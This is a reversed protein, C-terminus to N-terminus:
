SQAGLALVVLDLAEHTRRLQKALDGRRDDSPRKGYRAASRCLRDVAAHAQEIATSTSSQQLQRVLTEVDAMHEAATKTDGETVEDGRPGMAQRYYAIRAARTDSVARQAAVALMARGAGSVATM